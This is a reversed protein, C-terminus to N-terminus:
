IPAPQIDQFEIRYQQPELVKKADPLKKFGRLWGVNCTYQKGVSPLAVVVTSPFAEKAAEQASGWADFAAISPSDAQFAITISKPNPTFGGSLIGDVGMRTETIDVSDHTFEDDTAYGQLVIDTPFVGPVSLVISSNASTITGM